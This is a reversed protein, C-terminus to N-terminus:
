WKAIKTINLEVARKYLDDTIELDNHLYKEIRAMDGKICCGMVESGDMGDTELGVFEAYEKLRGRTHGWKCANIKDRLDVIQKHTFPSVVVGHIFSRAVLFPMDFQLINFGVAPIRPNGKRISQFELWFNELMDKEDESCWVTNKDKTRIGIAVIKSDVPNILKKREEEDLAEAADTDIPCTEIDVILYPDM